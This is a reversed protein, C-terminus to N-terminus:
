RTPPAWLLRVVLALVVAIFVVRIFRAGHRIALTAGLRGGVIQGVIMAAAALPDVSRGGAFVALAALNSTLNVVKTAATARTLPLARGEVWAATWFAGTGPGFFGDYFGLASGALLAFPWPGLRPPGAAAALGPRVFIWAAVGLLLWPVIRALLDNRVTLVTVTGVAAMVATVIVAPRVDRWEVLGAGHYKGVAMATGVASQLKNTGLALHAPLGAWLLAPLSILGGGGAIADIFGAAFGALGLGLITLPDM